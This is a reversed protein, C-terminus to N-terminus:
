PPLFYPPLYIQLFHQLTVFGYIANDTQRIHLNEEKFCILEAIISKINFIYLIYIYGKIDNSKIKVNNGTKKEVNTHLGVQLLQSYRCFGTKGGM